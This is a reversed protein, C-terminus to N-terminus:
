QERARFFRNGGGGTVDAVVFGGPVATNTTVPQWAGLDESAQLVYRRGVIGHLRVQLAEPSLREIRVQPLDSNSLLFNDSVYNGIKEGCRKGERNAFQFHIGGYIRSMGVEDAGAALSDFRRVVGPLSDSFTDFTIADTGFFRTIVQAAAKSFTSHGSTYEPFPPSVLYHDWNPDAETAPNGDEAARQIATVPRWLNYRYKAEWCVIGGDAQALSVLAMLRASDALTLRRDRAINAAIENWHGPPMATYSFDSWFVAIQSQEASRVASNWAGLRKVEDFDRAYEESDLPPPPPPVFPELEPLTFLRVYRWHPDLPPRFFPPTRRWAGPASSPIYPVQTNAGDNARAFLMADAVATGWALGNTTAETNPLAARQWRFLEEVAARFSPYLTVCIRYGAASAAAEPLTEPPAPATVQYPQHTRLIGNVADYIAGHLMALNRSSLTPASDDGRICRMMM